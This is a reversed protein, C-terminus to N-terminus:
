YLQLLNLRYRNLACTKCMRGGKTQKYTNEPTFEHGRKCHTKKKNWPIIKKMAVLYETRSYDVNEQPTVQELHLPNCCCTNKCKHNIQLDPCLVGCFYEYIFRHTLIYKKNITIIGYGDKSKGGTWEWCGNESVSIKSLFREIAPKM